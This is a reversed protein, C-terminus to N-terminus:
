RVSNTPVPSAKSTWPPAIRLDASPPAVQPAGIWNIACVLTPSRGAPLTREMAISGAFECTTRAEVSVPRKREMSPPAVKAQTSRGLGAAYLQPEANPRGSKSRSAVQSTTQSPPELKMTLPEYAQGPKRAGRAPPEEPLHTSPPTPTSGGVVPVRPSRQVLTSSPAWQSEARIAPLSGVCAAEQPLVGSEAPRPSTPRM